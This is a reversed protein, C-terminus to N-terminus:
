TSPARTGWGSPEAGSRSWSPPPAGDSSRASRERGGSTRCRGRPGPFPRAITIVGLSFFPKRLVQLKKECVFASQVSKVTGMAAIIKLLENRATLRTGAGACLTTITLCAWATLFARLVVVDTRMRDARRPAPGDPTTKIRQFMGLSKM